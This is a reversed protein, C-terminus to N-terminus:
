GDLPSVATLESLELKDAAVRVQSSRFSFKFPAPQM